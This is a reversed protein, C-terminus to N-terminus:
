PNRLRAHALTRLLFAMLLFALGLGAAHALVRPLGLQAADIFPYPYVGSLAGRTLAYALYAVPWALWALPARAPIRRQPPYRWWWLLAAAPVAYHLLVDALWAAGQPNWLNRLLLHYGLGVLLIATVASGRWALDRGGDAALAARTAMWAVWGNTLVTFYGVFQWLGHLAGQGNALSTRMSLGLQLLLAAGALMALAAAFRRATPM